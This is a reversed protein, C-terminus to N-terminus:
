ESEIGSKAIIKLSKLNKKGSFKWYKEIQIIRQMYKCIKNESKVKYLNLSSTKNENIPEKKKIKAVMNM